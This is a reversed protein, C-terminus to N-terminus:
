KADEETYFKFTIEKVPIIRKALTLNDDKVLIVGKAKLASIRNNFLSVSIDLKNRIKTRSKTSFLVEFVQSESSITQKLSFYEKLFEYILNFEAETLNLGTSWLMLYSKIWNDVNVKTAYVSSKDLNTSM